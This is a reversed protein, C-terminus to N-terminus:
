TERFIDDTVRELLPDTVKIQNPCPVLAYIRRGTGPEKEMVTSLSTLHTLVHAPGSAFDLCM